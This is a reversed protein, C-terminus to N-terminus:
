KCSFVFVVFFTVVPLYLVYGPFIYICNCPVLIQIRILQVKDVITEYKRNEIFRITEEIIM